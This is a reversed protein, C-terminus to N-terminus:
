HFPKQLLVSYLSHHTPRDMAPFSVAYQPVDTVSQAYAFLAGLVLTAIRTLRPHM